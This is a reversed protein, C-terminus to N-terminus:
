EIDAIITDSVPVGGAFEVVRVCVADDGLRREMLGAVATASENLLARLAVADNAFRTAADLKAFLRLPFDDESTTLMVLFGDM